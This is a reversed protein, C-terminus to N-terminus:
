RPLVLDNLFSTAKEVCEDYSPHYNLTRIDNFRRSLPTANATLEHLFIERHRVLFPAAKRLDDPERDIVCCLDFLDRPTPREGRHWM